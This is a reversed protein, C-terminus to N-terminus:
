NQPSVQRPGCLHLAKYNDDKTCIISLLIGSFFTGPIIIAPSKGDLWNYSAIYEVNSVTSATEAPPLGETSITALLEGQIKWSASPDPKETWSSSGGRGRHNGRRWAHDLRGRYGSRDAMTPFPRDM